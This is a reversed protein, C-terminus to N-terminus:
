DQASLQRICLREIEDVKSVYANKDDELEKRLEVPLKKYEEIAVLTTQASKINRDKNKMPYSSIFLFDRIESEARTYVKMMRAIEKTEFEM